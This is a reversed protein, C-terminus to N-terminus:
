LKPGVPIKGGHSLVLERFETWAAIDQPLIGYGYIDYLLMDIMISTRPETQYRVFQAAWPSNARQAVRGWAQVLDDMCYPQNKVVGTVGASNNQIYDRALCKESVIWYNKDLMLNDRDYHAFLTALDAYNGDEMFTGDSTPDFLYYKWNQQEPIAVIVTAHTIHLDMDLLMNVTFAEIDFLHLVKVLFVAFSACIGGGDDKEWVDYFIQAANMSQFYFFPASSRQTINSGLDSVRASWNMLISVAKLKDSAALADALEPLNELLYQKLHKDPLCTPCPDISLQQLLYSAKQNSYFLLEVESGAELWLTATGDPAQYSIKRQNNKDVRLYATGQQQRGKITLLSTQQLPKAITFFQGSNSKEIEITLPLTTTQLTDTNYPKNKWGDIALTNDMQFHQWALVGGALLAM